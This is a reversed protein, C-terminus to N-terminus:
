IKLSRENTLQFDSYKFNYNLNKISIINNKNIIKLNLTFILIKLYNYTLYEGDRIAKRREYYKRM